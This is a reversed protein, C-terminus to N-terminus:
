RRTALGQDPQPRPMLLALAREAAGALAEPSALEIRVALYCDPRVLYLRDRPGSYARILAGTPDSIVDIGRMTPTTDPRTLLHRRVGVPTPVEALRRRLDHGAGGEAPVVLLSVGGGLTKRLTTRGSSGSVRCFGDPAPVGACAPDEPRASRPSGDAELDLTLPSTPYPHPEYLRGSDIRDSHAPDAAAAELVADRRAKGEADAPTMFRMTEGTVEIHHDATSIRELEYTDLLAPDAQGTLVFGLKWALNEADELGSNMGRAGFPSVVHASDGALFVRGERFRRARRQQFTYTNARLVTFPHDGIVKRAREGLREPRLEAAEDVAADIQWDIRWTREGMCHMLVIGGPSFPPDFWLRREVALPLDVEFDAVLFRGEAHWGDYPIRLAKRITSGIGDAGVLYAGTCREHGAPGEAEVIVSAADQRLGVVTRGHRFEVLGSRAAEAHLLEEIRFQPFNVFAPYVEDGRGPWRLRLIERDRYYTRGLSWSAGGDLIENVIGLRDFLALVDRQVTIARSQGCHTSTNRELVVSRVGQRALLLAAAMGVPGGGCIIVPFEQDIVARM